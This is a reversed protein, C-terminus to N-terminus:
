DKKSLMRRIEDPSKWDESRVISLKQSKCKPCQKKGYLIKFSHGCDNCSLYANSFNKM